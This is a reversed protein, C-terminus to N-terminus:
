SGTEGSNDDEHVLTCFYHKFNRIMWGVYSLVESNKEEIARDGISKLMNYFKEELKMLDKAERVPVYTVTFEPEIHEPNLAISLKILAKCWMQLNDVYNDIVKNQPEKKYNTYCGIAYVYAKSLSLLDNIDKLFSNNQLKEGEQQKFKM